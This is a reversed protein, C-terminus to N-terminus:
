PLEKWVAGLATVQGTRTVLSSDAFVGPVDPAPPAGTFAIFRDCGVSRLDALHRRLRDPSTTFISHDITNVACTLVTALRNYHAATSVATTPDYDDFSLNEAVGPFDNLAHPLTWPLWNIFPRVGLAGAEGRVMQWRAQLVWWDPSTPDPEDAIDFAAIHSAVPRWEDYAAARVTVDPDWLRADHVITGLGHRANLEVLRRYVDPAAYRTGPETVTYTAPDHARCPGFTADVGAAALGAVVAAAEPADPEAGCWAWTVVPAPAPATAPQCGALLALVAAVARM